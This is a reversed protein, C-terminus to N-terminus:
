PMIPPLLCPQQCGASSIASVMMGSEVLNGTAMQMQSCGELVKANQRGCNKADHKTVNIDDIEDGYDDWYCEEEDQAIIFSHSTPM